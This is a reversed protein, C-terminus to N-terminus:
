SECMAACYLAPDLLEYSGTKMAKKEGVKVGMTAMKMKYDLLKSESKKIDAVTSRGIGYKEAIITYSTGQKLMKIVELKDDISLVVKRRKTSKEM